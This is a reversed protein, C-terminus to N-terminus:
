FILNSRIEMREKNPVLMQVLMYSKIAFLILDMIVNVVELGKAISQQLILSHLMQVVKRVEKLAIELTVKALM